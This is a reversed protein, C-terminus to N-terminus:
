DPESFIKFRGPSEWDFFRVDEINNPRRGFELVVRLGDTVYADGTLNRGPLDPTKEGGGKVFGIKTIGQSFLMDEILATRAEDIDPDIKHTTFTPTQLTFRVGIDRSIQGVWVEKDNYSLDTLWLRLHNRQHVTGRAKQLAIDQKRGNFYLPSVPSYRYHKGFIFSNITKWISGLYSQESRHWGRRVFAPFLMSSDGIIVLNLPDGDLSGDEGTTCCPLQELRAKLEREDLATAPSDNLTREVGELSEARIEALEFYFDFFKTEHRSILDIDVEKEDMDLNVFVFGSHKTNAPIPNRFSVTEFYSELEKNYDPNLWARQSYAVEHPSFYDPDMASNVLWYVHDDRNDIEVWIVQIRKLSLDSGFVEQSESHSLVATTVTINDQTQTQARTLYTSLDPNAQFSACGSLGLLSILLILPFFERLRNLNM